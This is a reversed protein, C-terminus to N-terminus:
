VYAPIWVLPQLETLLYRCFTFVFVFSKLLWGHYLRAKGPKGLNHRHLQAAKGKLVAPGSIWETLPRIRPNM